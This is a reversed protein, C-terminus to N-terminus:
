APLPEGPRSKSWAPPRLLVAVVAAMVLLVVAAMGLAVRIGDDYAHEAASLVLGADRAPLGAAVREANGITERASAAVDPSVPASFRWQYVLALVSGLVAVGAGSSLEFSTEQIAAAEGAREPRVAATISDAGSTMIIGAGFGAVVLVAVLMPYGTSSLAFFALAVGFAALAVTMTARHGLRDAIAPALTAGLANAVALPVIALGADLPSFERTQQLWQMLLFLMAVYSGFCGFVALVAVSFRRNRFLTLDMLPHRVRRQRLVFWVLMALGAVGAIVAFPTLDGPSAAQKLGYVFGALGLVSVVVSPADWPRPQPNYSEPIVIVGAVLVVAVIPVNVLFVTGWRFHEVLVGGILPGLTTGVSHSATWVGIAFARERDDTFVNRIIAVTAAMILATGLGLVARAAILLEANPAFAAALSSLGFLAFGSLAIRKRGLKDALAGCVILFTAVVLSYVDVIWLLTPGSPTLERSLSPVAVHLVTLDLGALLLSTCLM